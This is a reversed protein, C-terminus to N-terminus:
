RNSLLCDVDNKKPPNFLLNKLLRLFRKHKRWDHMLGRRVLQRHFQIRSRNSRTLYRPLRPAVSFLFQDETIM